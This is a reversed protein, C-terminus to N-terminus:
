AQHALEAAKDAAGDMTDVQTVLPHNFEDLIRRGEEVNNGDLRVVIPKGISDGRGQLAALTDSEELEAMITAMSTDKGSYRKQLVEEIQKTVEDIPREGWRPLVYTDLQWRDMAYGRPRKHVKAYEELYREALHGLDFLVLVRPSHLAVQRSLEIETARFVVAMGGRAIEEVVLAYASM